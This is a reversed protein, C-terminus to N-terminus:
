ILNRTFVRKKRIKGKQLNEREGGKKDFSSGEHVIRFRHRLNNSGANSIIGPDSFIFVLLAMPPSELVQLRAFEGSVGKHIDLM